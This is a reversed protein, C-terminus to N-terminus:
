RATSVLKTAEEWITRERREGISIGRKEIAVVIDNLPIVRARNCLQAQEIPDGPFRDGVPGGGAWVDSRTWLLPRSKHQDLYTSRSESISKLILGKDQECRERWLTAARAINSRYQMWQFNDTSSAAFMAGAGVAIGVAGCLIHKLM